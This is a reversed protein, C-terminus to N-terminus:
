RGCIKFKSKRRNFLNFSKDSDVSSGSEGSAGCECSNSFEVSNGSISSDVNGDSNGNGGSDGTGGFDCLENLLTILCPIIFPCAFFPNGLPFSHDLYGCRVQREAVAQTDM